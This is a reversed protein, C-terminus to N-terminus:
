ATGDQREKNRNSRFGSNAPLLNAEVREAEFPRVIQWYGVVPGPAFPAVDHRARHGVLRNGLRQIVGASGKPSNRCEVALCLGIRVVWPQAVQAGKNAGPVTPSHCTVRLGSGSPRPRGRAPYKAQAKDLPRRPLRRPLIPVLDTAGTASGEM